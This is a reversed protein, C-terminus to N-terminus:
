ETKARRTASRAVDDRIMTSHKPREERREYTPELVGRFRCGLADAIRRLREVSAGRYVNAEDRQVQQESVGLEEALRAQTWGRAIRARVLALPLEEISWIPAIPRGGKRLAEYEALERRLEELQGEGAELLLARQRSTLDNTLANAVAELEKAIRAEAAKTIRYQRENLIM